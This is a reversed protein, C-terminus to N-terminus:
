AARRCSTYGSRFRGPLAELFPIGDSPSSAPIVVWKGDVLEASENLTLCQLGDGYGPPDSQM